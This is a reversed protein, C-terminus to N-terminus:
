QEPKVEFVEALTQRVVVLVRRVTAPALGIMRAIDETGHSELGLVAVEAERENLRAFFHNWKEDLEATLAPDAANSQQRDLGVQASSSDAPGALAEEGQVRGGGRKEALERDCHAKVKNITFRVLVSWLNDRGQLDAYRPDERVARSFDNFASLAADEEDSARRPFDRLRKRALGVLRHYYRDWLHAAARDDGNKMDDLWESVSKSDDSM